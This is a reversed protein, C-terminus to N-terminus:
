TVDFLNDDAYVLLQHTEARLIGYDGWWMAAELQENV